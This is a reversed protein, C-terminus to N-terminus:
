AVPLGFFVAIAKLVGEAALNASVGGALAYGGTRLKTIFNSTREAPQEGDARVAAQLDAVADQQLGLAMGAKTLSEM